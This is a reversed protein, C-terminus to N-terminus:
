FEESSFLRKEYQKLVEQSNYRSKVKQGGPIRYTCVPIFFGCFSATRKLNGDSCNSIKLRVFATLDTMCLNSGLSWIKCGSAELHKLIDM